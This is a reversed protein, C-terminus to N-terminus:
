DEGAEMNIVSGDRVYNDYGMEEGDEEVVLM